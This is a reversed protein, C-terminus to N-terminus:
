LYKRNVDFINHNTFIGSSYTGRPCPACVNDDKTKSSGQVFFHGPGCATYKKSTCTTAATDDSKYTDEPCPLCANDDLTGSLGLQLFSGATCSEPITKQTCSPANESSSYSGEPCRVCSFDNVVKSTGQSLYTGEPCPAPTTKLTCSSAANAFQSYSGDPCTECTEGNKFMGPACENNKVCIADNETASSGHYVTEGETCKIMKPLCEREGEPKFTGHLCAKCTGDSYGMSGPPCVPITSQRRYRGPGVVLGEAMRRQREKENERSPIDGIYASLVPHGFGRHWFCGLVKTIAKEVVEWQHQSIRLHESVQTRQSINMETWAGAAAPQPEEISDWSAQNFGLAELALRENDTLQTNWDLLSTDKHFIRELFAWSRGWTFETFYLKAAAEKEAKSLSRWPKAHMLVDLTFDQWGSWQTNTFKELLGLTEWLRKEPNTMASVDTTHWSRYYLSDGRENWASNCDETTLIPTYGSASIGTDLISCTHDDAFSDSVTRVTTHQNTITCNPDGQVTCLSLEDASSAPLTRDLVKMFDKHEILETDMNMLTLDEASLGLRSHHTTEGEVWTCIQPDDRPFLIKESAHVEIKVRTGAPFAFDPTKEKKTYTIPVYEESKRLEVDVATVTSCGLENTPLYSSFVFFLTLRENDIRIRLLM